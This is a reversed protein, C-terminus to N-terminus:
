NQLGFKYIMQNLKNKTIRINPNNWHYTLYEYLFESYQSNKKDPNLKLVEKLSIPNSKLTPIYGIGVHNILYGYITINRIHKPYQLIGNTNERDYEKIAIYLSDLCQKIIYKSNFRLWLIFLKSEIINKIISQSFFIIEDKRWFYFFLKHYLNISFKKM